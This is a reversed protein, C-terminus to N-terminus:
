DTKINVCLCPVATAPATGCESYDYTYPCMCPVITAPGTGCDSYNETLRAAVLDNAEAGGLITEQELNSVTVKRFNLKSSMKKSKM